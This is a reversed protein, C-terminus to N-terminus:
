PGQGQGRIGSSGGQVLVTESAVNSGRGSHDADQKAASPPTAIFALLLVVVAVVVVAPRYATTKAHM